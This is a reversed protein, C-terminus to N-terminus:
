QQASENVAVIIQRSAVTRVLAIPPDFNLNNLQTAQGAHQSRAALGAALHSVTPMEMWMQHTWRRVRGEEVVRGHARRPAPSPPDFGLSAAQSSKDRAAFERRQQRRWRDIPWNKLRVCM